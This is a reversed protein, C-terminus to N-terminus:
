DRIWEARVNAIWDYIGFRLLSMESDHIQILVFQDYYMDEDNQIEEFVMCVITDITANDLADSTHSLQGSIAQSFQTYNIVFQM